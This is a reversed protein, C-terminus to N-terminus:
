QLEPPQTHVTGQDATMMISNLENQNPYIRQSHYGLNGWDPLIFGPLQQVYHSKRGRLNRLQEEIM